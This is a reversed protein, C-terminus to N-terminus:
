IILHNSNEPEGMEGKIFTNFSITVRDKDSENNDVDHVMSSPFIVLRGVENMVGAKTATFANSGKDNEYFAFNGFSTRDDYRYFYTPCKDGEVYYICSFISNPHMHTHHYSHPPNRNMWSQTIYFSTRESAGLQKAFARVNLLCWHKFDKMSEDNMIDKRTTLFNGGKNKIMELTKLYDLQENTLKYLNDSKYVPTAFVADIM